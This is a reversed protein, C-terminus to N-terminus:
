RGECLALHRRLADDVTRAASLADGAPEFAEGGFEGHCDNKTVWAFARVRYDGASSKRRETWLQAWYTHDCRQPESWNCVLSLVTPSWPSSEATVTCGGREALYRQLEDLIAEPTRCWPPASAWASSTYTMLVLPDTVGIAGVPATGGTPCGSAFGMLGLAVGADVVMAPLRARM